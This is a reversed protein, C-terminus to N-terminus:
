INLKLGLVKEMEKYRNRVTVETVGTVDAVERQTRRENCIIASIYIAAAVLGIPGRGSTLQQTDAERIIELAKIQVESSLALESCFRHLYDKPSTPMLKLGLERTMFRYVRGIEKRGVRSATSVEDLTRPVDAKRCAAYISAAVLSEISRGRVLNRDVAQRYIMAANERIVKPLEMKSSIRDLEGLAYAINREKASHVRIRRQWKRLRYIAARNRAPIPQGSSDKNRHDITTPLGKDHLMMNPVPGTRSKDNGDSFNRWEPGQDIYMDDLVLGCDNCLLDGRDYDRVINTSNCEPCRVIQEPEQKSM